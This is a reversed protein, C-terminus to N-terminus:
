RCNRTNQDPVPRSMTVVTVNRVTANPQTANPQTANPQAANPQAANPQAANTAADDSARALAPSLTRNWWITSLMDWSM